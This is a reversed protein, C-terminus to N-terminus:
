DKGAARACANQKTSASSSKEAWEMRKFPVFLFYSIAHWPNLQCQTEITDSGRIHEREMWVLRVRVSHRGFCISDDQGCWVVSVIRIRLAIARGNRPKKLNFINYKSCSKPKCGIEITDCNRHSDGCHIISLRQTRIKYISRLSFTFLILNKGRICKVMHMRSAKHAASLLQNYNNIDFVCIASM